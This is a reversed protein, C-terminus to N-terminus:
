KGTSLREYVSLWKVQVEAVWNDSWPPLAPLTFNAPIERDKVPRPLPKAQKRCELYYVTSTSLQWKKATKRTGLEAADKLIEDKNTEIFKHREQNSQYEWGCSLCKLVGHDNVLQSGCRKCKNNKVVM